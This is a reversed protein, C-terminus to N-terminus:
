THIYKFYYVNDQHKKQLTFLSNIDIVCYLKKREWTNTIYLLYETILFCCPMRLNATIQLRLGQGAPVPQASLLIEDETCSWVACERACSEPALHQTIGLGLCVITIPFLFFLKSYWLFMFYTLYQSIREAEDVKKGTKRKWEWFLFIEPM